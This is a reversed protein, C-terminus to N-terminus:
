FLGKLFKGVEKKVEEKIDDAPAHSSEKSPSTSDQAENVAEDTESLPTADQAAQISMKPMQIMKVGKPLKFYDESLSKKEVSVLKFGDSYRLLGGYKEKRMESYAEELDQAIDEGVIKSMNTSLAMWGQNVKKIDAHTSMVVEVERLSGDSQEEEMLYVKGKYGAVVETKGSDKLAIAETQAEEPSIEKGAERLGALMGSMQDMDIANWQNDDRNLSYTKGDLLLLYGDPSIELRIHSDDRYSLKLLHNDETEWTAVMDGAWISNAFLLSLLLTLVIRKM